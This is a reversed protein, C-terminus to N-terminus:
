ALFIAMLALTGIIAIISYKMVVHFGEYSDVKSKYYNDDSM